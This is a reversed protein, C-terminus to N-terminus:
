QAESRSSPRSLKAKLSVAAQVYGGGAGDIFHIHDATLPFPVICTMLASQQSHLGYICIGAAEAEDLRNTIRELQRASLEITLKLGDDFKKFDSNAATERRYRSASFRGFSKGTRDSLWGIAQEGLIAAWRVPRALGSASASAEIGLGSPPWALRPGEHPLPHSRDSAAGTLELLEGILKMFDADSSMGPASTVLLSVIQGNRADVPRWRCSLGTLNPRTGTAAADILNFGDKMLQEALGVGGGAFMAYSVESAPSYRAVKVDSNNRRLEDISVIAARLELNLEDKVWAQVAALATTVEGIWKGPVALAIGDGGFVFPFERHGLANAVASIGSAGATIVLKYRGAAIAETSAVIDTTAVFWESPLPRYNALDAVAAFNEIAPMASYFEDTIM